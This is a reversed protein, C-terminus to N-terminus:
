CLEYYLDKWEPNEKEILRLKDKRPWKKLCKERFMATEIDDFIEYYVLQDVAYRKTFGAVAKSKHDYIRKGLNVTMGIYITGNRKSALIYVFSSM